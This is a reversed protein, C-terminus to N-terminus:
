HRSRPNFSTISYYVTSTILSGVILWLALTMSSARESLSSPSLLLYREYAAAAPLGDLVGRLQGSVLYPITVPGISQTVGAVTEVNELQSGVQEIWAVLSDSESTLLLILGVDQLSQQLEEPLARGFITECSDVEKICEVLRRLGIAEGPVFGIEQVDLGEIDGSVIDAVESGAASQSVTVATSDSNSLQELLMIAIPNLEGAMAPTYDFAVLVPEGAANRVQDYLQFVGETPQRIPSGSVAEAISPVLLGIFVAILLAGGVLLRFRATLRDIISKGTREEVISEEHILGELIAIQQRHEKSVTYDPRSVAILPSSIAPEVQIAGRIGALRGKEEVLDEIGLLDATDADQREEGRLWTPTEVDISSTDRILDDELQQASDGLWEPEPTDEGLQQLWKEFSSDLVTDDEEPISEEAVPEPARIVTEPIPEPLTIDKAEDLEEKESERRLQDSLWSPLHTGALQKPVGLLKGELDLPQTGRKRTTGTDDPDPLDSPSQEPVGGENSIASRQETSEASPQPSDADDLLPPELDEDEAKKELETLWDSYGTSDSAHDPLDGTDMRPIPMEEIDGSGSPVAGDEGVEVGQQIDASLAADVDRLWDPVNVTGLPQPQDRAEPQHADEPPYNESSSKEESAGKREGAPGSESAPGNMEGAISTAEGEVDSKQKGRYSAIFSGCLECFELDDHTLVRCNECRVYGELALESGCSICRTSLASNEVSCNPCDVTIM